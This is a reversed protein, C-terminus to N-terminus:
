LRRLLPATAASTAPEAPAQPPPLWMTAPSTLSGKDLSKVFFQRHRVKDM